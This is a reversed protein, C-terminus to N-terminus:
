TVTACVCVCVCVCVCARARACVCVCVCVFACARACLLCSARTLDSVCGKDVDMPIYDGFGSLRSECLHYLLVVRQAV